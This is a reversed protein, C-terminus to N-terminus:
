VSSCLPWFSLSRGPDTLHKLMARPRVMILPAIISYIIGIAALNTFQPYTTGWTNTRM